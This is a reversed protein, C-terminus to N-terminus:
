RSAKRSSTPEPLTNAPMASRPIIAGPYCVVVGALRHGARAAEVPEAGALRAAIYAASFSDGAATTDVVPQTLPEPRVEQSVGEFRVITGPQLLRLIAENCRIRAILQEDSEYPYLPLLDETSALVIDSAVFAEQFVARAVDPDPWGRARFNTDFVIRTGHERARHLADILRARGQASYISLTIASLYVIDYTALSRLIDDTEPLDMLSRAAASERWHFFRREGEEDTQIMYIGPLKGRLRAVRKTGVGEAAWGAIMEDSLSDDGLATIYDVGVGLRALYVATNLTDGGFGRSYLGGNLGDKAQKLEIMCEGICAVKPM